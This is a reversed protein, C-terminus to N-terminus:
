SIRVEVDGCNYDFTVTNGDRLSKISTELDSIDWMDGFTDNVFDLIHHITSPSSSDWSLIMRNYIAQFYIECGVNTLYSDWEDALSRADASNINSIWLERMIVKRYSVSIQQATTFYMSLYVFPELETTIDEDWPEAYEDDGFLGGDHYDTKTLTVNANQDLKSLFQMLEKVTM